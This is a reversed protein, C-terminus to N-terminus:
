TYASKTQMQKCVKFPMYQRFLLLFIKFLFNCQTFLKTICTYYMRSVELIKWQM